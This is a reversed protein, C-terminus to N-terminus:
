LHLCLSQEPHIIHYLAEHEPYHLLILGCLHIIIVRESVHFVPERGPVDLVDQQLEELLGCVDAGEDFEEFNDIGSLIIRM